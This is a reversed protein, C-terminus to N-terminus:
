KEMTINVHLTFLHSVVRYHNPLMEKTKSLYSFLKQTDKIVHLLFLHGVMLRPLKLIQKTKSSFNFLPFIDM